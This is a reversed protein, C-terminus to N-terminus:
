RQNQQNNRRVLAALNWRGDPERAAVIRPRDLTLRRIATGNSVLERISYSVTVRDIAILTSDGRSLRVDDLEIGRALSGGLRGISLTAALYRNAQSVILARIQEHAWPTQLAALGAVVLLLVVVALLLLGRALGSGFRRWRGM